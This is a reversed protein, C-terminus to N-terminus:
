LKKRYYLVNVIYYIFNGISVNGWLMKKEGLVVMYFCENVLFYILRLYFEISCLSSCM